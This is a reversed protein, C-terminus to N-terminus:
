AGHASARPEDRVEAREDEQIQVGHWFAVRDKIKRALPSPHPYYWAANENKEGFVVVKLYSAVGKWPCLSHHRSEELYQENLSERPFNPESSRSAETSSIGSTPKRAASSGRMNDVM